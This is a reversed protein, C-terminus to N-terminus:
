NSIEVLDALVLELSFNFLVVTVRRSDELFRSQDVRRVRNCVVKFTIVVLFRLMEM